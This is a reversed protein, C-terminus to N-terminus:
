TSGLAKTKAKTLANIPQDYFFDANKVPGTLPERLSARTREAHLACFHAHLAAYVCLKLAATRKKPRERRLDETMFHEGSASFGCHYVAGKRFVLYM